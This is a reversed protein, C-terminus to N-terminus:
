RLLQGFSIGGSLLIDWAPMTTRVPDPPALRLMQPRLWGVASLDVWPVICRPGATSSGPPVAIPRGLRLGGGVGVDFAQSRFNQAFGRGEALALASWVGLSVDWSLAGEAGVGRYRGLAAAWLRTWDVTGEALPEPRLGTGGILLRGGWRNRASSVHLDITGGGAAQGRSLALLGGVGVEIAARPPRPPPPPKPADVPPLTWAPLRSRPLDAVATTIIVAAAAALAPCPASPRLDHVSLLRGAAGRVEVRLVDDLPEISAQADAIAGQDPLLTALQAAVAAASPCQGEVVLRLAWALGYGTAWLM